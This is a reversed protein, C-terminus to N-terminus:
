DLSAPDGQSIVQGAKKLQSDTNSVVLVPNGHNATFRSYETFFDDTSYGAMAYMKIAGNNQCTIVLDWLNIPSQSNGMARAQYPGAINLLIFSFPPCPYM